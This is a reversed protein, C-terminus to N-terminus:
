TSLQVATVGASCRPCKIELLGTAHAKALLKGCNRCRVESLRVGVRTTTSYVITM